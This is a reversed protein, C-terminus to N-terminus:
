FLWRQSISGNCPATVIAADKTDAPTADLCYGVQAVNVIENTSRLVWSQFATSDCLDEIVTTEPRAELCYRGGFRQVQIRDHGFGDSVLLFQQEPPRPDKTCTWLHARAQLPPDETRIDLCYHNPAANRLINYTDHNLASAPAAGLGAGLMAVAVVLAV